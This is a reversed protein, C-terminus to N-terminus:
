PLPLLAERSRVRQLLPQETDPLPQEPSPTGVGCAQSVLRIDQTRYALHTGHPGRPSPELGYSMNQSVAILGSPPPPPHCTDPVVHPGLPLLSM